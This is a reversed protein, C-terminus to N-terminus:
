QDKKRYECDTKKCLKCGTKTHLECTAVGVIATVSKSPSMLMSENLTLGINKSLSLIRFLDKQLTLDLDGYGPSFRPCLSKGEKKVEQNKEECFANCLTEIREAGIAQFMFAKAPSLKGYKSILRDPGVGVTAGFLIASDCSALVDSLNKSDIVVDSIMIRERFVRVPLECFCVQYTLIKEAEEICEEMLKEIDPASNKVGSYRLIEKKNYPLGQYTKKEIM